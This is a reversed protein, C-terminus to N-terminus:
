VAPHILINAPDKRNIDINLKGNKPPIANSQTKQKELPNSIKHIMFLNPLLLLFYRPQSCYFFWANGPKKTYWIRNCM